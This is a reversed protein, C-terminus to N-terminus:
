TMLNLRILFPYDQGVLMLRWCLGEPFTMEKFTFGIYASVDFADLSPYESAIDRNAERKIRTRNILKEAIEIRCQPEGNLNFTLLSHALNSVVGVDFVLYLFPQKHELFRKITM